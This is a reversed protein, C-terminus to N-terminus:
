RFHGAVFAYPRQAAQPSDMVTTVGVPGAVTALGPPNDQNSWHRQTGDWWNLWLNGDGGLVFVYPLQEM